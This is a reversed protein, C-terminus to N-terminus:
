RTRSWRSTRNSWWSARANARCRRLWRSGLAQTKTPSLSPNRTSCTTLHSVSSMADQMKSSHFNSTILRKRESRRNFNFCRLRLSMVLEWWNTSSTRGLQPTRWRSCLTTPTSYNPSSPFRCWYKSRQMWQFKSRATSASRHNQLNM